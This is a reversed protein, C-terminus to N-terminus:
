AAVAPHDVAVWLRPAPRRDESRDLHISGNAYIGIRTCGLAMAATVIQWRSYNWNPDDPRPAKKIDIAECPVDVHASDQAGGVEANYIRDRGDSSIPMPVGARQRVAKLWRMFELGMREPYEFETASFEPAMEAWDEARM